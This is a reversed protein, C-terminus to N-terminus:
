EFDDLLDDPSWPEGPMFADDLIDEIRYPCNEPVEELTKRMEMAAKRRAHRYEFDVIEAPFRRLSPSDDLVGGIRIRAESISALWGNKRKDPQLEWKLLHALLVTLRSRIERRDSAGLSEIEEAVNAWDVDATRREALAKAQERTWAHFDREYLSPRNRTLTDDM